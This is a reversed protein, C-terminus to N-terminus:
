TTKEIKISYNDETSQTQRDSASSYYVRLAARAAEQEARKISYSAAEALRQQGSFVGVLFTPLHSLRGTESLMKYEPLPLNALTLRERLDLKPTKLTISSVPDVQELVPIMLDLVLSNAYQSGKDILLAGVLACLGDVHIELTSPNLSVLEPASRIVYTLGIQKALDALREKAVVTTILKRYADDPLLPLNVYIYEAVCSQIFASGLPVLRTNNQKGKAANHISISSHTLAQELLDKDEFTDKNLIRAIFSSTELKRRALQQIFTSPADKEKYNKGPFVDIKSNLPKSKGELSKKSPPEKQTIQKTAIRVFRLSRLSPASSSTVHVHAHACKASLVLSVGLQSLPKSAM